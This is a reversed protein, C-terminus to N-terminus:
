SSQLVLESCANVLDMDPSHDGPLTVWEKEFAERRNWSSAKALAAKKIAANPQAMFKEACVPALAAVVADDSLQAAQRHATGPSMWGFGFALVIWWLIAGGAAGWAFPKIRTFLNM